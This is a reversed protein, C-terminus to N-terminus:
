KWKKEPEKKDETLDDETQDEATEMKSLWDKTVEEVTEMCVEQETNSNIGKENKQM